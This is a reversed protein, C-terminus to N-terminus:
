ALEYHPWDWSIVRIKIGMGQAVGLAYRRLAMFRPLGKQSWDIPYPAIDVALPPMQNHKSNPWQKESKGENFAKNQDAENRFGCIVTIDLVDDEALHGADVGMVLTNVFRRLEPHCAALKAQSSSGLPM